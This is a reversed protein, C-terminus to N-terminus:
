MEYGIRLLGEKQQVKRIRVGSLEGASRVHTGGCPVPENLGIRVARNRFPDGVIAFPVDAAVLEEIGLGIQRALEGLGVADGAFEVRGEGPWHHGRLPALRPDAKVVLDALLHGASHWRSSLIRWEGDVELSVEDGCALESGLVIHDVEQDEGHRVDTVACGAIFGRDAKQGGGQPHFLTRDLRVRQRGGMHEITTVRAVSKLDPSALYFKETAM